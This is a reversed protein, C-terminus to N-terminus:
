RKAAKSPTSPKVQSVQAWEKDARPGNPDGTMGVLQGPLVDATRNWTETACLLSLMCGKIKLRDPAERWLSIQYSKGNEANYIEGDFRGVARPMLGMILQHGLIPRLRKAPDPNYHDKYPEGRADVPNKMWVIYGCAQDLNAGCREVRIRARGDETLWTGSPDAPEVAGALPAFGALSAAVAVRLTLRRLSLLSLIPKM